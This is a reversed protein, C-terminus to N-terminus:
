EYKTRTLRFLRALLGTFRPLDALFPWWASPARSRRIGAETLVWNAASGKVLRTGGALDRNAKAESGMYAEAMGKGLHGYEHNQHIVTTVATIDVVPIELQHAHYVMWNDWNARGVAFAPLDQYLHKPFVFYDKCVRPALSGATRTRLRVEERWGPAEFDLEEVIDTNIRRGIVLFDELINNTVKELAAQFDDLLLIDSNVYGLLDQSALQRAQHFVDSLLPTGQESKAINAVHRVGLQDAFEKTGLEDGFLIIEAQPRLVTWSRIANRQIVGIHGTFPKPIGFLTLTPM